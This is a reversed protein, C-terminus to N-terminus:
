LGPQRDLALDKGCDIARLKRPSLDIPSTRAAAELRAIRERQRRGLDADKEAMARRPPPDYVLLEIEGSDELVVRLDIGVHESAQDLEHGALPRRPVVHQHRGRRDAAPRRDRTAAGKREQAGVRRRQARDPLDDRAGGGLAEEVARQREVARDVRQQLHGPDGALRHQDGRGRRNLSTERSVPPVVTWRRDIPSASRM